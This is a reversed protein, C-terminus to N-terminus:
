IGHATQYPMGTHFDDENWRLSLTVIALPWLMKHYIPGGLCGQILYQASSGMYLLVDKIMKVKIDNSSCDPCVFQDRQCLLPTRGSAGLRGPVQLRVYRTCASPASMFLRQSIGVSIAGTRRYISSCFWGFLLQTLASSVAAPGLSPGTHHMLDSDGGNSTGGPRPAGSYPYCVKSGWHCGISKAHNMTTVNFIGLDTGQRRIPFIKMVLVM